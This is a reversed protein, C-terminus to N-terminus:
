KDNKNRRRRRLVGACGAAPLLARSSEPVLEVTLTGNSLFSSTNFTYGNRLPGGILDIDSAPDFGNPVIM